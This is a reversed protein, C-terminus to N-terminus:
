DSLSDRVARKITRLVRRNNSYANRLIRLVEENSKFLSLEKNKMLLNDLTDIANKNDFETTQIRSLYEDWITNSDFLSRIIESLQYDKPHEYIKDFVENFDEVNLTDCDAFNRNALLKVNKRNIPTLKGGYGMVISPYNCSASEIVCRGMGIVGDFDNRSIYEVPSSVWGSFTIKDDLKNKITYSKIKDIYNGDGILVLKKVKNTKLLKPIYDLILEGKIEDIRSVIAWTGCNKFIGGERKPIKSINIGNRALYTRSRKQFPVEKKLMESVVFVYDLGYIYAIRYIAKMASDGKNIFNFSPKGHQTLSIPIGLRNAAIISATAGWFPHCDIFDINNKWCFDEIIKAQELLVSIHDFADPCFKIGTIKDKFLYSYGENFSGCILSSDINCKKYFLVQEELRTELGGNTFADSVFLVNNM